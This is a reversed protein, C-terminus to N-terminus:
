KVWRLMFMMFTGEDPCTIGYPELQCNNEKCWDRMEQDYPKTALANYRRNDRWFWTLIHKQSVWNVNTM